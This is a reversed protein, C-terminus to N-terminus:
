VILLVTETLFRPWISCDILALVRLALLIALSLKSECIARYVCALELHILNLPLADIVPAVLFSVFALPHVVLHVTLPEQSPGIALLVSSLKRFVLAMTLALEKPSITTLVLAAPM